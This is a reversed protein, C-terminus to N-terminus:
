QVTPLLLGASNDTGASVQVCYWGATQQKLRVGDGTSCTVVQGDVRLTRTSDLNWCVIRQYTLSPIYGEIAICREASGLQDFRYGTSDNSATLTTDPKACLGDCPSSKCTGDVDTEGQKCACSGADCIQDARCVTGCKGCYGASELSQLCTDDCETQGAPCACKGASCIQDARCSAICAGGCEVKGTPCACKGTACIQDARCTAICTGDCETQGASCGCKGASCIQDARCTIDCSGCHGLDEVSLVCSGDCETQDPSCTCKGAACIQDSRCSSNCEDTTTSGGTGGNGGINGSDSDQGGDSGNPRNANGGFDLPTIWECAAVTLIASSLAGWAWNRM